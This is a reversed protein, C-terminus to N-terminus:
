GMFCHEGIVGRETLVEEWYPEAKSPNYFHTTPEEFVREGYLYVLDVALESVPDIEGKYPTAFQYPSNVVEGSSMGLETSRDLIVQAVAMQGELSQNRAEAMVVRVVEEKSSLTMIREERERLLELEQEQEEIVTEYQEVREELADIHGQAYFTTVIIGVTLVFLVFELLDFKKM